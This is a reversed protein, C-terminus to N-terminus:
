RDISDENRGWLSDRLAHQLGPNNGSWALCGFVDNQLDFFPDFRHDRLLKWRTDYGRQSAKGHWRHLITGLLHGVNQEISQGARMAWAQLARGYAAEQLEVPFGFRWNGCLAAAMHTDASGAICVDFLGGLQDFAWRTAAWAFGPHHVLGDYLCGRPNWSLKQRGGDEWAAIMGKQQAEFKESIISDDPGLNRWSEFMQVVHYHQLAEITEDIWHRRTFKTDADIWAFYRAEPNRRCVHAILLNLLREKHWLDSYTRFHLNNEGQPVQFGRDGFAMEATYLTAGNVSRASSEEVYTVFDRYLRLRSNFRRPNFLTTVIHLRRDSVSDARADFIARAHSHFYCDGPLVSSAAHDHDARQCHKEL